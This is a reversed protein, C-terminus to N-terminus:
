MMDYSVMHDYDAVGNSVKALQIEGHLLEETSEPHFLMNGVSTYMGYQDKKCFNVQSCGRYIQLQWEENNLFGLYFEDKGVRDGTMLYEYFDIIRYPATTALKDM